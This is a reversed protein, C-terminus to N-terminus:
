VPGIQWVHKTVFNCACHVENCGLSVNKLFGLDKQGTEEIVPALIASTASDGTRPAEMAAPLYSASGHSTYFTASTHDVAVLDPAGTTAPLPAAAPQSPATVFVPPSSCAGDGTLFSPSSSGDSGLSGAQLWM